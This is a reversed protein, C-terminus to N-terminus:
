SRSDAAPSRTRTDRCESSARPASALSAVSLRQRPHQTAFMLRDRANACLMKWKRGCRNYSFIREHKSFRLVFPATYGAIQAIPREDQAQDFPPRCNKKRGAPNRQMQPSKTDKTIRNRLANIKTGTVKSGIMLGSAVAGTNTAVKPPLRAMACRNARWIAILLQNTM